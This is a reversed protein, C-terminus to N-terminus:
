QRQEFFAEGAALELHDGADARQLAEAGCRALRPDVGNDEGPVPAIEALRLDEVGGVLVFLRDDEAPRPPIRAADAAQQRVPVHFMQAQGDAFPEAVTVLTEAATRRRFQRRM